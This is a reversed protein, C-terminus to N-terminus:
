SLSPCVPMQYSQLLCIRTLEPIRSAVSIPYSLMLQKRLCQPNFCQISDQYILTPQTKIYPDNLFTFKSVQTMGQARTCVCVCM